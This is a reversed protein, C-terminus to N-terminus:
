WLRAFADARALRQMEKQFKKGHGNFASPREGRHRLCAHVMEHLLTSEIYRWMRMKRLRPNVLIAASGDKLVVFQAAFALMGGSLLSRHWMVPIPPLKARFHRRNLRDFMKCLIPSNRAHDDLCPM